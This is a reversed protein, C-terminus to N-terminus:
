VFSAVHGDPTWATRPPVTSHTFELSQIDRRVSCASPWANPRPCVVNGGQPSGCPERRSGQSM